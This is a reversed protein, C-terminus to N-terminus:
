GDTGSRWSSRWLSTAGLYRILAGDRRWKAARDNGWSEAVQSVRAALPRGAKEVLDLYGPAIAPILKDLIKRLATRLRTSRVKEVCRITLDMIGREVKSLAKYWRRRRLAKRRIRTLSERTLHLGNTEKSASTVRTTLRSDISTFLRGGM